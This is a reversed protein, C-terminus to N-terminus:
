SRRIIEKRTRNDNQKENNKMWYQSIGCMKVKQM